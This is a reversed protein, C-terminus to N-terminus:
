LESQKLDQILLQVSQKDQWVNIELQVALDVEDYEAIEEDLHGLGWGIASFAQSGNKSIRLRLHNSNAGMQGHERVKMNRLSFVPYPNGMGYPEMELLEHVLDLSIEPIQLEADIEVTPVLLEASIDKDAIEKLRRRFEELKEVKVTLGAAQSHGGYKVLIDSMRGLSGVIDFGPISRAAGMAEDGEVILLVTPRRYQRMIQSAIIGTVGHEIGTATVLFIKDHELDCQEALLPMFKQLNEAQLEKRESNLQLIEDLIKNARYADETLLLEAALDAKGRRGAANLVPTIGWSVSKASQLNAKNKGGCRELLVQVGVKASEALRRLGHKVMVRNESVLPMIDAITGLTIVDMHSNQFFSMRLDSLRELGRFVEFVSLVQGMAGQPAPKELKMDRVLDDLSAALPFYRRGPVAIDILRLDVRNGGPEQGCARTLAACTGADAAIIRRAGAFAFFGNWPRGDCGAPVPSSFRDLILGNRVRLAAIEGQAGFPDGEVGFVALEENYYKGFSLMLAESVKFSVSCGALDNFPYASDGRKPDVVAVAKPIGASPPEHHDTVVFDIGLARAYETEELASIGCDVSIILSVGQRAYREIIEKHVGYGEESPIYWLPDAGLSRLTRVMISISTVGDVDRDGYVLIKEKADVARRIREVAAGIDPLLFPNGLTNLDPSLYREAEKLSAIGRNVLVAAAPRSLKLQRTIEQMLEPSPSKVIWNNLIKMM